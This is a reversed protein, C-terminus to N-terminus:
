FGVFYRIVCSLNLYKDNQRNGLKILQNYFVMLEKSFVGSMYRYCAFRVKRSSFRYLKLWYPLYSFSSISIAPQPPSLLIKVRSLILGQFVKQDGTGISLGM